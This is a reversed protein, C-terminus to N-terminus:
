HPSFRSLGSQGSAGVGPANESSDTPGQSLTTLGPKRASYTLRM